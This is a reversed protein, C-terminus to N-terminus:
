GVKNAQCCVLIRTLYHFDVAVVLSEVLVLTSFYEIRYIVYGLDAIVVSINDQSGQNQM